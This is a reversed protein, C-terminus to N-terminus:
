AAVPEGVPSAVQAHLKFDDTALSEAHKGTSSLFFRSPRDTCWGTSMSSVLWSGPSLTKSWAGANRCVSRRASQASRFTFLRFSVKTLCVRSKGSWCLTSCGFSTTWTPVTCNRSSSEASRTPHIPNSNFRTAKRLFASDEDKGFDRCGSVPLFLLRPFLEGVRVDTQGYLPIRRILYM